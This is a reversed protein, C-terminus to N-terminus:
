TICTIHVHISLYSILAYPINFPVLYMFLYIFKNIFRFNNCCAMYELARDWYSWGGKFYGEELPLKVFPKREFSHPACVLFPQFSRRPFPAVLCRPDDDDLNEFLMRNISPRWDGLEFLLNQFANFVVGVGGGGGGGLAITADELLMVDNVKIKDLYNKKRNANAM